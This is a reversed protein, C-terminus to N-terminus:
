LRWLEWREYPEYCDRATGGVLRGTERPGAYDGQGASCCGHGNSWVCLDCTGYGFGFGGGCALAREAKVVDFRIPPTGLSFIFSGKAPDAAAMGSKPWPVGAVGGCLTGNRMKILVLTPAFDSAKKLFEDMDWELEEMEMLLEPAKLNVGLATLNVSSSNMLTGETCNGETKVQYIADPEFHDAFLQDSNLRIDSYWLSVGEAKAYESAKKLVDLVSCDTPVEICFHDEGLACKVKFSGMWTGSRDTFKKPRLPNPAVDV